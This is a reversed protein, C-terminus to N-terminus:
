LKTERKHQKLLLKKYYKLVKNRLPGLYLYGSESNSNLMISSTIAEAILGGFYIFDM